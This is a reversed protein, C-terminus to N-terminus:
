DGCAPRLPSAYRWASWPRERLCPERPVLTLFGRSWPPRELPEDSAAAAFGHSRFAHLLHASDRNSAACLTHAGRSLGTTPPTATRLPLCILLRAIRNLWHSRERPPPTDERAVLVGRMASRFRQPAYSQALAGLAASVEDGQLATIRWLRRFTHEVTEPALAEAAAPTLVAAALASHLWFSLRQAGARPEEADASCVRSLLCRTVRQAVDAM